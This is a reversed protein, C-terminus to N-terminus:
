PMLQHVGLAPMLVAGYEAALSVVAAIFRKGDVGSV